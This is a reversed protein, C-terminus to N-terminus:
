IINLFLCRPCRKSRSVIRRYEVTFGCNGCDFMKQGDRTYESTKFTKEVRPELILNGHEDFLGEFPDDSSQKKLYETNILYEEVDTNKLSKGRHSSNWCHDFYPCKSQGQDWSCPFRDPRPSCPEPILSVDNTEQLQQIIGWIQNLRNIVREKFRETNINLRLIGSTIEGHISSDFTYQKGNLDTWVVQLEIIKNKEKNEVFLIGYPIGTLYMYISLQDIYSQCYALNNELLKQFGWNSMTKIDVVIPVSDTSMTSKRKAYKQLIKADLIADYHGRLEWEYQKLIPHNKSSVSKEMSLLCGMQEWLKQYREHVSHGNEFVRIQDPTLEKKPVSNFFSYVIKRDGSGLESARFYKKTYNNKSKAQDMLYNNIAEILM